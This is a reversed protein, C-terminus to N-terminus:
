GVAIGFMPDTRLGDHDNLDEYGQVLGYVRQAILHALSHQVRKPNRHDEFCEAFRQTIRYHRDLQAILVLGGDSTIKGGSFDATVQRRGIQGFQYTGPPLEIKTLIM